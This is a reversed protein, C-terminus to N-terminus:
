ARHRGQGRRERGVEFQPKVLAVVLGGPKLNLNIPPLILKLSIFSVDVSAFDVLEDLFGAGAHRFNVREIVSVRPDERLRQDILGYGVDVSYVKKAGEKLLCDTFGGTSAGIDACSM